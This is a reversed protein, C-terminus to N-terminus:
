KTKLRHLFLADVLVNLYQFKSVNLCLFKSLNLSM